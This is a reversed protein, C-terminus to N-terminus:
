NPLHKRRKRKKEVKLENALPQAESETLHHLVHPLSNAPKKIEKLINDQGQFSQLTQQKPTLQIQVTQSRQQVGNASYRKGLDSGNFVCKTQHDIYTLGYVVGAENQRLCLDICERKLIKQLSSLTLKLQKIFALDVAMKVRQKQPQRADKNLAFRAQIFPLTPANYILSAKVPIGIKEGKENLVRYVLGSSKFTRSTEGGKDALVNYQKLTANLEALSTYKYHPLVADLVNSYLVGWYESLLGAGTLSLLYYFFM